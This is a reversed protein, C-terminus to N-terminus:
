ASTRAEKKNIGFLYGDVMNQIDRLVDDPHIAITKVLNYLLQNIKLKHLLSNEQSLALELDIIKRVASDMPSTYLNLDFDAEKPTMESTFYFNIDLNEINAIKALINPSIQNIGKEWKNYTSVHVGLQNSMEQQSYGAYERGRKLKMPLVDGFYRM